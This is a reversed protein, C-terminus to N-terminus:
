VLHMPLYIPIKTVKKREGTGTSYIDDLKAAVKDDLGYQILKKYDQSRQEAPINKPETSDNSPSTSNAAPSSNVVADGGASVDVITGSKLNSNIPSTM